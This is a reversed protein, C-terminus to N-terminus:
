MQHNHVKNTLDWLEFTLMYRNQIELIMEGKCCIHSMTNKDAYCHQTRFMLCLVSLYSNYVNTTISHHIKWCLFIQYVANNDFLIQKNQLKLPTMFISSYMEAASGQVYSSMPVFFYLINYCYLFWKTLRIVIIFIYM